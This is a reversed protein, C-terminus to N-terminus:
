RPALVAGALIRRSAKAQILVAVAEGQAMEGPLPYLV